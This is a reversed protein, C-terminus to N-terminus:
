VASISDLYATDYYSAYRTTDPPPPPPLYGPPPAFAAPSLVEAASRRAARYFQGVVHLANHSGQGWYDSRFTIAPVDFGVWAGMVLNPHLLMFWGDAGNQTTGTKGALDGQAGFMYRIRQGTGYDVTGRMMDLLHYATTASLAGRSQGGFHALVNGDQDEIRTVFVPEHHRGYDAITTYAGALELLTVEGTGLGVSPYPPMESRIGMRHATEIVRRPGLQLVLQATITNKSYALADRLSVLRGSVSGVNQPRWRRRTDPDVFEVAEDRLQDNPSFGNELAAAYVFPKFTSGPQRKSQA